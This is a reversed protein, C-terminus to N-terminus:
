PTGWTLFEITLALSTPEMEGLRMRGYRGLETVYCLVSGKSLNTFPIINNSLAAAQCDQQGPTGSVIAFRAGSMPVLSLNGSDDLRYYLDDGAGSSMIGSDLNINSPPRMAISGSVQPASTVAPPYPTVPTSTAPTPTGPTATFATTTLTPTGSGPAGVVIRVWFSSAANGGLGFWTGQPNRLKWDGQYKGAALPAILSASIDLSQGPAVEYPLLIGATAGMAEGSFLAISYNKTWTCTGANMLRWTKTFAQGPQMVTDDPITIDIPNGAAAQDCQRTFVTATSPAKQTATPGTPSPTTQPTSTASPALTASPTLAASQTLQAIVTEFAQTVDLTPAASDSRPLNCGALTTISLVIVLIASIKRMFTTSGRKDFYNELTTGPYAAAAFRAARLAYVGPWYRRGHSVGELRLQRM